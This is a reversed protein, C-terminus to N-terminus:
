EPYQIRQRSLGNGLTPQVFFYSQSDDFEPTCFEMVLSQSMVFHCRPVRLARHDLSWPPACPPACHVMPKEATSQVNYESLTQSDELQKGVYILRQQAPLINEKDQIKAKVKDITDTTVVDMKITKGTLTKVFIQVGGRSSTAADTHDDDRTVDHRDHASHSDHDDHVEDIDLGDHIPLNLFGEDVSETGSTEPAARTEVPDFIHQQQPRQPHPGDHILQDDHDPPDRNGREEHANHKDHNDHNSHGHRQETLRALLAQNNM